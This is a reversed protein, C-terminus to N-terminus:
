AGDGLVVEAAGFAEEVEKVAHNGDAGGCLALADAVDLLDLDAMAGEFVVGVVDQDIFDLLVVVEDMQGSQGSQGAQGHQGPHVPCKKNTIFLEKLVKLM